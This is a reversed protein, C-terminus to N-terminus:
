ARNDQMGWINITLSFCIIMLLTGSIRVITYTNTGWINLFLGDVAYIKILSCLLAVACVHMFSPYLNKKFLIAIATIPVLYALPLFFFAYFCFSELCQLLALIGLPIYRADYFLLSCYMCLVFPITTIGVLFFQGLDILLFITVTCIFFFNYKTQNTNLM